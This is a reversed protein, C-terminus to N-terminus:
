RPADPPRPRCFTWAGDDHELATLGHIRRFKEILEAVDVRRVTDWASSQDMRAIEVVEAGSVCVCKGAPLGTIQM